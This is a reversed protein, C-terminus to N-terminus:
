KVVEFYLWAGDTAINAHDAASPAFQAQVRYLAYPMARLAVGIAAESTKGLTRCGTTSSTLWAKKAPNYRQLELKVCQGGSDPAVTATANLSATHHFVRYSVGNVRATGFYGTDAMSIKVGVGVNATATAATYQADGSFAATFMTSHTVLYKVMLEGAANVRGSAILKRATTGAEQEYIAVTRNTDTSGLRATIEVAAGYAIRAASTAVTLEPKAQAVRVTATGAAAATTASGAYSASYAYTGTLGPDDTLTFDGNGDTTVPFQVSPGGSQTRTITVPTGAPPAGADFALAGGVPYANGPLATAPAKLTLTTPALSVAVTLTATAPEIAATGPYSATYTYTGPATPTDTLAFTGDSAVSATFVQPAVDSGSQTRTITIASPADTPAPLFGLKVTGSVTVASGIDVSTAGTLTLTSRIALLNDFIDLSFLTGASDVLVAYLETGDASFAFGGPVVSQGTPLSLVNLPGRVVDPLDITAKGGSGHVELSGDPSLASVASGAAEGPQLNMTYTNFTAGCVMFQAGGPYVTVGDENCNGLALAYALVTAPDTAVNYTTAVLPTQDDVSAALIGTDSPDSAIDPAWQWGGAAGQTEFTPSAASLDFDGIAGNGAIKGVWPKDYSVWLRGSELALGYPTLVTSSPLSYTTTQTLTGTDIVGIEDPTALAAYLTSGDSSLALGEVGDGADLTTVYNGSLDTVVIATSATGHGGDLAGSNLGESLFVYGATDDVLIQHFGTLQPISATTDASAGAAPLVTLAAAGVLASAFLAGKFRV